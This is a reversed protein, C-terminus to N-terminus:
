LPSAFLIFFHIHALDTYVKIFLALVECYIFHVINTNYAVGIWVSILNYNESPQIQCGGRAIATESVQFKVRGSASTVPFHVSGM